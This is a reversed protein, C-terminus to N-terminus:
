DTRNDHVDTAGVAIVEPMWAPSTDCADGSENGAAVVYTIGAAVSNRIAQEAALGFGSLSINAVGPQGPVHQGTVWDIGAALSGGSAGSGPCPIVKVAILQVDKAVGYPTSGLVGAVFTGHGDGCDADIGDGSDNVGWIARGGFGP